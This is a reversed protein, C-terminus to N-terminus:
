YIFESGAVYIFGAATAVRYVCCIGSERTHRSAKETERRSSGCILAHIWFGVVYIYM